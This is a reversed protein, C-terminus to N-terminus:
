SCGGLLSQIERVDRLKKIADAYGEYAFEAIVNPMDLNTAMSKTGTDGNRMIIVPVSYIKTYQLTSRVKKSSLNWALFFVLASTAIRQQELEAIEGWSLPPCCLPPYRFSLVVRLEPTSFSQALNICFDRKSKIEATDTLSALLYIQSSVVTKVRQLSPRVKDLERQNEGPRPLTDQNITSRGPLIKNEFM